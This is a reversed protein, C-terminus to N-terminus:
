IKKHLYTSSHNRIHDAHNFGSDGAQFTGSAKGRPVMTTCLSTVQPLLPLTLNADPQQLRWKRPREAVAPGPKM